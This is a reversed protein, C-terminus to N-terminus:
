AADPASLAILQLPGVAPLGHAQGKGNSVLFEDTGNADYDITAVVDGCGQDTQPIPASALVGEGDNLYLVDPENVGHICSQVVYVDLHGDGNADGVAVWRGASLSTVRVVPGFGATSGLQVVLERPLVAVLDLRGDGNLDALRANTAWALAGLRDEISSFDQGRRNRYIKLREQGCVLLDQWGDGDVDVAQVCRTGVEAHLRSRMKVFGGGDDNLYVRNLSSHDDQRPYGNGVFLDPYEDHNVDLFTAQRGRGWPNAVGYAKALDTFEGPPGQIYLQDSKRDSTGKGAGVSCFIDQLRDRDVDAVDCGHRDGGSPLEGASVETFLGGVNHWIQAAEGHRGFLFDPRGDRDFDHVALSWSRAAEAIGADGSADRAVHTLADATTQDVLSAWLLGTVVVGVLLGGRWAPRMRAEERM